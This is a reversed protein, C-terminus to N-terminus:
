VKKSADSAASGAKSLVAQAKKEVYAGYRYGLYGGGFLSIAAVIGYSKFSFLLALELM